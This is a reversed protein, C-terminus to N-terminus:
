NLRSGRNALSHSRNNARVFRTREHFGFDLSLIQQSLPPLYRTWIERDEGGFTEMRSRDVISARKQFDARNMWM